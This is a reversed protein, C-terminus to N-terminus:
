KWGDGPARNAYEPLRGILTAEAQWVAPGKDLTRCRMAATTPGGVLMGSASAQATLPQDEVGEHGRRRWNLVARQGLRDRRRDREMRSLQDRGYKMKWIAENRNSLARQLFIAKM